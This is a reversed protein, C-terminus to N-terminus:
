ALPHPSWGVRWLSAHLNKVLSHCDSEHTLFVARVATQLIPNPSPSAPPFSVLQSARVSDVCSTIPAQVVAPCHARLLRSLNWPCKQPVILLIWLLPSHSPSHFIVGRKWNPQHRHWISPSAPLWSSAHPPLPPYSSLRHTTQAM